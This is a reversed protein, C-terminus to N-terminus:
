KLECKFPLWNTTQLNYHHSLTEIDKTTWKSYHHYLRLILTCKVLSVVVVMDDFSYTYTGGLM